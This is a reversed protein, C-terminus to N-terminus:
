LKSVIKKEYITELTFINKWSAMTKIPEFQSAHAWTLLQKTPVPEPETETQVFESLKQLTVDKNKQILM